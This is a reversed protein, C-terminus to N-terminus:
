KKPRMEFYIEHCPQMFCLNEEYWEKMFDSSNVLYQMVKKRYNRIIFPSRFTYKRKLIDFKFDAYFSPVKRKLTTNPTAMYDFTYLGFFRKHTYDSYYYPNSFHPVAIKHIGEPKLVRHIEKMILEFNELHEMLHRSSIEDVSNDPLFPLGKELDAVLDVGPLSAYDIGIYGKTKSPGCGLEINIIEKNKIKLLLEEINM